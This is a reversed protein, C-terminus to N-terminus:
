EINVEREVYTPIYEVIDKDLGYTNLTWNQSTVYHEIVEPLHNVLYANDRIFVQLPHSPIFAHETVTLRPAGHSWIIYDTVLQIMTGQNIKGQCETNRLFEYEGLEGIIKEGYTKSLAKKLLNKDKNNLIPLYM